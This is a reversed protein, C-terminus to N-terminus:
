SFILKKIIKLLYIYCWFIDAFNGKNINKFRPIQEHHMLADDCLFM